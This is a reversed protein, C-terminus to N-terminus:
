KSRELRAPRILSPRLGPQGLRLRVARHGNAVDGVFLDKVGWALFHDGLLYGESGTVEFAPIMLFNPDSLDHSETIISNWKNVDVIQKTHNTTIVASLGRALAVEKVDALSGSGDSPTTHIHGDLYILQYHEDATAPLNWGVACILVLL